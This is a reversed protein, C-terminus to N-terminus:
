GRGSVRRRKIAYSLLTIQNYNPVSLKIVENEANENRYRFEAHVIHNKCRRLTTSPSPAVLKRLICFCELSASGGGRVETGIRM